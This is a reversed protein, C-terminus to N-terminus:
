LSKTFFTSLFLSKLVTSPKSSLAKHNSSLHEVMEVVDGARKAETIKKIPDQNIGLGAQVM